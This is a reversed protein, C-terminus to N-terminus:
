QPWRELEYGVFVSVPNSADNNRVDVTMYRSCPRKGLCIKKTGNITPVNIGFNDQVYAQGSVRRNNIRIDISSAAAATVVVYIWADGAARDSGFMDVQQGSLTAGAGVTQLNAEDTGVLAGTVRLM